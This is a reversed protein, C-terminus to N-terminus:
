GLGNIGTLHLAAPEDGVNEITHVLDGRYALFDGPELLSERDGSTIRIRGREALVIERSGRAHPESRHVARPAVTIHYMELGDPLGPVSLIRFSVEGNDSTICAQEEASLRYFFEPEKRRGSILEAIEVSLAASVKWLTVLTPNVRGSEIQSLMTKSIGSM